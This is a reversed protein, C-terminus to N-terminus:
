VKDVNKVEISNNRFRSLSESWEKKEKMKIMAKYGM